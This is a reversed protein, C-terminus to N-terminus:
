SKRRAFGLGFLGLGLLALTGPESVAVPSAPPRYETVVDLIINDISFRSPGTFWQPIVETFSLTLEQGSYGDLISTVDFFYGRNPTAGSQVEKRDEYVQGISDGNSDLFSVDFVRAADDSNPANGDRDWSPGRQIDYEFRLTASLLHDTYSFDQNLFFTLDCLLCNVVGGDFGNVARGSQIVWGDGSVDYAYPRGGNQYDPTIGVDWGSFDNTNFHSNQLVPVAHAASAAFGLALVTTAKKLINM